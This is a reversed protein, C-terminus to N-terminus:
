PNIYLEKSVTISLEAKKDAPSSSTSLWLRYEGAEVKWKRSEIHWYAAHQVNVGMSVSSVSSKEGAGLNIRGFGVLGGVPHDEVGFSPPPIYVQIVEAGAVPGNNMVDATVVLGNQNPDESSGQAIANTVQFTTYSLGFGFPWRVEKETGWMRDFHRYGVFVVEVYEVQRSEYNDMSFNRYVATHEYEKPWLIPLKGSPNVEGFLVDFIASGFEQGAYWAQLFAPVNDLWPTTVAVGTTNM